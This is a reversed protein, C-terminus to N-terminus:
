RGNRGSYSIRPDAWILALDSVLTGIVTLISLVFLFSGALYVDQKQLAEILLPGTTPIDLVQSTIADGSIIAPLMWGITSVIPLFAVRLPHRWLVKWEPIGKSRATRVYDKKLEDLIMSRLLRIMGATGATGIVVVPVWLHKLMDIFKGVSWDAMIYERSFLGGIPVDFYVYGVYMLILALFFNPIALGVFGVFTFLYDGISYQKVASYVSIPIAVAWTFLVTLVSLLMTLGLKPM